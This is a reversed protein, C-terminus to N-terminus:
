KTNLACIHWILAFIALIYVPNWDGTVSYGVLLMMAAMALCFLANAHVAPAAM